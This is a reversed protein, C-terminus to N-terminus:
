ARQPSLGVIPIAPANFHLLCKAVPPHREIAEGPSILFSSDGSGETCRMSVNLNSNNWNWFSDSAIGALRGVVVHVTPNM